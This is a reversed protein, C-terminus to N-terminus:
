AAEILRSARQSPGRCLRGAPGGAAEVALGHKPKPWGALAPGAIAHLEKRVAGSRAQISIGQCVASIWRALFLTDLVRLEGAAADHFEAPGAANGALLRGDPHLRARSTPDLVSRPKFM